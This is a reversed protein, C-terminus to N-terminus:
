IVGQKGATRSSGGIAWGSSLKGIYPVRFNTVTNVLVRWQDRYLVLDIWDNGGFETETTDM